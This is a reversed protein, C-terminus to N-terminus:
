TAPLQQALRRYLRFIPRIQAYFEGHFGAPYHEGSNLLEERFFFAVTVRHQGFPTINHYDGVFCVTALIIENVAKGPM